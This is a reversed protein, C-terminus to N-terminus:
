GLDQYVVLSAYKEDPFTSIVGGSTVEIELKYKDVDLSSTTVSVQGKAANVISAPLEIPDGTTGQVFAKVTAGTLNMNLVWTM